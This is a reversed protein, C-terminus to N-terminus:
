LFSRPEQKPGRGSLGRLRLLPADPQLIGLAIGCSRWLREGERVTMSWPVEKPGVEILDKRPFTGECDVCAYFKPPRLERTSEPAPCAVTPDIWSGCEKTRVESHLCVTPLM